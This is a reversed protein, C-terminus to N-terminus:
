KAAAILQVIASRVIFIGGIFLILSATGSIIALLHFINSWLGWKASTEGPESYPHVWSKILSAAHNAHFLNTFYSSLFAILAGMVGFAFWVLSEAAHALQLAPENTRTSMSSIFSLMALIAGGNALLVWRLAAEGAKIAADNNRSVFEDIGDHHREASRREPDDTM